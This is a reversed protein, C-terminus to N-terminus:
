RNLLDHEVQSRLEAVSEFKKEPRKFDTTTVTITQGYLEGNFDFLHAELCDHGTLSNYGYYLLGAFKKELFVVECGYLGKKMNKEEALKPDLNATHAGTEEGRGQGQKVVGELVHKM